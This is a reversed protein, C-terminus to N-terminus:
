SAIPNSFPGFKPGDLVGPVSDHGRREHKQEPAHDVLLAALRAAGAADGPLPQTDRRRAPDTIGGLAVSCFAQQPFCKAAHASPERATEIQQHDHPVPQARAREVIDDGLPLATPRTNFATESRQGGRRRRSRWPGRMRIRRGAGCRLRSGPPSSNMSSRRLTSGLALNCGPMSRNADTRGAQDCHSPLTRTASIRTYWNNRDGRRPAQQRNSGDHERYV